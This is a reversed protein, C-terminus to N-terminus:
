FILRTSSELNHITYVYYKLILYHKSTQLKKKCHLLIQLIVISPYMNEYIKIIKHVLNRVCFKEVDRTIYKSFMIGM